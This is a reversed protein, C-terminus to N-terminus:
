VGFQGWGSGTVGSHTVVLDQVFVSPNLPMDYGDQHTHTDPKTEVPSRGPEPIGSVLM